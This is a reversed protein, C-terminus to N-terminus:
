DKGGGGHLPWSAARAAFRNNAAYGPTISGAGRRRERLLGSDGAQEVDSWPGGRLVLARMDDKEVAGIGDLGHYALAGLLSAGNGTPIGNTRNRFETFLDLVREPM